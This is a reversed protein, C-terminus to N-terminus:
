RHLVTELNVQAGARLVTILVKQGPKYQSIIKKLELFNHIESKDVKQIIDGVKLGAKEAPYGEVVFTIQCGLTNDKGSVGLFANPLKIAQNYSKGSKLKDWNNKFAAIPAHFNWGNAMGIRSNIGIVQGQLNFLPGGSDGGVLTCDTQIINKRTTVIRGIRTVPKRSYKYGNPHGLALCWDGTKLSDSDGMEVFPWAGKTKIKLLGVDFEHILGLSTGTLRRGSPLIFIVPKGAEGSVHAATLVYGDESVIVGSGQANGIRVSVVSPMVKKTMRIILKQMEQLDAIGEPVKKRFVPASKEPKVTTAAKPIVSSKGDASFLNQSFLLLTLILSSLIIQSQTRM